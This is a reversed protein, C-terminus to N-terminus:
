CAIFLAFDVLQRSMSFGTTAGGEFWDKLGGYRGFGQGHAVM